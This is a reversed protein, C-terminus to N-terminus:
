KNTVQKQLHGRRTADKIRMTPQVRASKSTEVTTPQAVVAPQEALAHTPGIALTFLAPLKLIQNMTTQELKIHRRQIQASYPSQGTAM